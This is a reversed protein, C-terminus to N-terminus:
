RYARRRQASPFKQDGVQPHAHRVEGSEQPQISMKEVVSKGQRQKSPQRFAYNKPRFPARSIARRGAIRRPEASKLHNYLSPTSAALNARLQTQRDSRLRQRWFLSIPEGLLRTSAPDDRPSFGRPEPSTIDRTRANAFQNEFSRFGSSMRAWPLYLNPKGPRDPEEVRGNVRGDFVVM